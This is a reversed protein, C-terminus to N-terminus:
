SVGRELETKKSLSSDDHLERQRGDQHDSECGLAGNGASPEGSGSSFCTLVTLERVIRPTGM